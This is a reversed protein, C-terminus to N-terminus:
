FSLNLNLMATRPQGPTYRYGSKNIAAVYEEDLLNYLNLQLALNDNLKYGAMADMVWYSETYNPTGVAGDTGRKLEGNYRAGAALSLGAPLRYTLWSTFSSSPNYPLDKSGDKAKATGETVTSSLKTYGMSLNLSESLQGVASIEFGQIQKEGNQYYQNDTPDQEVQNDVVTRYLAASLLMKEDFLQWKTGLEVTTAQQPDFKANDSSSASASMKLSNGGPPQTAVAYDVYVNGQPTLQYLLGLQYTFLNGSDKDDVSPVVTGAALGACVGTTATGSCATDAQYQAEYHDLRLGTALQWQSTLEIHDYLYLATTDVQGQSDAGTKEMHYSKNYDPQYINLTTPTLPSSKVGTNQVKERTIEVGYALNHKIGLTSFAQVLGLQNTLISNEQDLTNVLHNMQWNSFDNMDWTSSNAATAMFASLLYDQKTQGWRTTNHLTVGEALDQEVIATVMDLQVDNYDSKTGYFNSSKPKPANNLEPRAPNPTSWSPLGITLAGGDPTNDQSIHLYNLKLRTDTGLGWALAPAIGYRRNAVHDRGPVDSDEWMLNLRAAGTSSFQGNSDLTVRNQNATSRSISLDAHNELWAQKSVMNISGSPATRGYDAGSPGKIVEVQESNFTDRSIAGLDRVGDVFISGSSDFGRMYITDGTSSNGNEGVYFTGVGPSNRLAETLTTAHQDALLSKDMVQITKPTKSIPQTFKTNGLQDKFYDTSNVQDPNVVVDSLSTDEQEAYVQGAVLGSLLAAGLSVRATLKGSQTSLKRTSIFSM